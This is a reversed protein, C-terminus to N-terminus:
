GANTGETCRIRYERRGTADTEFTKINYTKGDWLIRMKQTLGSFWRINIRASTDAQESGSQLFERGPGTLVEAPVNTYVDQWTIFVEGTSSDQTEVRDQITVRHRLRHQM